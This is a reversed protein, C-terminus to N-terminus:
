GGMSKEGVGLIPFPKQSVENAAQPSKLIPGLVLM